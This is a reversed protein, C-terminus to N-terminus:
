SQESGSIQLALRICTLNSLVSFPFPEPLQLSLCVEKDLQSVLYQAKDQFSMTHLPSLFSSSSVARPVTKIKSLNHPPSSTLIHPPPPPVQLKTPHHHHHNHHCRNHAVWRASQGKTIQSQPHTPQNRTSAESTAPCPGPRQKERLCRIVDISSAM